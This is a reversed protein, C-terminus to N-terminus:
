SGGCARCHLAVLLIGNYIAENVEEICESSDGCMHLLSELCALNVVSSRCQSCDSDFAICWCGDQCHSLEDKYTCSANIVLAMPNDHIAALNRWCVCCQPDPDDAGFCVTVGLRDPDARCSQFCTPWGPRDYGCECLGLPDLNVLVQGSVYTYFDLQFEDILPLELPMGPIWQRTVQQEVLPDRRNWQGLTSNLM